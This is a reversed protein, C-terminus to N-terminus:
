PEVFLVRGKQLAVKRLFDMALPMLIFPNIDTGFSNEELYNITEPVELIDFSDRLSQKISNEFMLIHTIHLSLADDQHVKIWNHSCIFVDEM